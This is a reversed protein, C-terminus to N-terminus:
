LLPPHRTAKSGISYLSREGALSESACRRLARVRWRIRLWVALGSATTILPVILFTVVFAVKSVMRVSVPPNAMMDPLLLLLTPILATGWGVSFHALGFRLTPERTLLARHLEWALFSSWYSMAAFGLIGTAEAAVHRARGSDDAGIREIGVCQTIIWSISALLDAFGLSFLISRLARHRSPTGDVAGVACMVTMYTSGLLSILAEIFSVTAVPRMPSIPDRNEKDLIDPHPKM